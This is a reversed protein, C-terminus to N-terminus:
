AVMRPQEYGMIELFMTGAAGANILTSDQANRRIISLGTQITTGVPVTIVTDGITLTSAVTTVAIFGTIICPNITQAHATVSNTNPISGSKEDIVLKFANENEERQDIRKLVDLLEHIKHWWHLPTIDLPDPRDLPGLQLGQTM